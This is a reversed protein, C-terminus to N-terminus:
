FPLLVQIRWTKGKEAIIIKKSRFLIWILKEGGFEFVKDTKKMIFQEVSTYGTGELEIQVDVEVVLKPPVDMYKVSIKDPTLVSKEVIAIDYSLNDNKSLHNGIEGFLVRYKKRDLLSCVNMVLYELIISQLSSSCHNTILQSTILGGFGQYHLM